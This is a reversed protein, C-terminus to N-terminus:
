FYSGRGGSCVLGPWNAGQQGVFYNLLAGTTVQGMVLVTFQSGNTVKIDAFAEKISRWVTSRWYGWFGM